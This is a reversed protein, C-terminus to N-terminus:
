GVQLVGDVRRPIGLPNADRLELPLASEPADQYAVPRLFRRMATVGVSTHISSSSPWPGGHQQAWSVAVGTPWGGFLVRGAIESLVAVVATLDEGPEAHVTATLTGGVAAIAELAQDVSEYEVVLTSPGFCEAYLSSPDALVAEATTTLVVASGTGVADADVRGGAVRVDDREVLEDVGAAWAAAIGDTLMPVAADADIVAAVREAFGSGVPAFVVGPNTCFQGAGLTFSGALGAALEDARAAAADPTVLVPNVASLEGYFPIPDPRSSALDFLVRGGHLSGTFGVARIGPHQVLATGNERGVIHAFLGEPAGADRLAEAVIEATRLSLRPHASHGKVIVPCGTALASATDGGAVSFAFPFNSAGFVAVPGLPRLIRRLDPRPPTTTADPHDVTAELYSGEVIATAFLRLQATTRAVEGNLRAPGLHTEADAIPVLEDRAADLADAIATLWTARQEASSAVSVAFAARAAAIVEDLSAAAGASAASPSAPGSTSATDITSTM